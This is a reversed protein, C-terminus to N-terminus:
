YYVVVLCLFAGSQGLIGVVRRQYKMGGITSIAPLDKVAGTSGLMTADNMPGRGTKRSAEEMIGISVLITM